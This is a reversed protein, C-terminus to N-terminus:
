PKEWLPKRQLLKALAPLPKAPEDLSKDFQTWAAETLETHRERALVREADSLLVRRMYESNAMDLASAAKDIKDKEDKTARLRIFLSRTEKTKKKRIAM